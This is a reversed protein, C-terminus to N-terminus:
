SCSFCFLVSAPLPSYARKLVLFEELNDDQAGRLIGIVDLMAGDEM